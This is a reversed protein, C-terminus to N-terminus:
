NFIGDLNSAAEAAIELSKQTGCQIALDFRTEDDTAFRLAIDPYGREELYGIISQGILGSKEIIRMVQGFEKKDLARKFMYETTDITVVRNSAQRDLCYLKDKKVSTIYIPRDVTRVIGKDGNKLFYKIHTLTNYIFVGNNEWVGTKVKTPENM